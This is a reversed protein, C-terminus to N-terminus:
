YPFLSRLRRLRDSLWNSRTRRIQYGRTFRLLDQILQWATAYRDAPNKELCNLIITELGRPFDRCLDSPAIPPQKLIMQRLHDSQDHEFPTCQLCLEYLTAGLSYLDAAESQQGQLREPAMYKLTGGCSQSSADPIRAQAKRTMPGLISEAGPTQPVPLTQPNPIPQSLGFDTVWVHGSNELLLNGPKIDNHCIGASHAAHLAHATQLGIRAFEQWSAHTLRLSTQNSVTPHQSPATHTTATNASVPPIAIPLLDQLDIGTASAGLSRIVRDLSAGQILKMIFFCYGNEQGYRFVPVIGPHHLQQVTQAEREFRAVWEPVVSVRWPLVKMAVLHGSSLDRARFVVGMGGRGLEQLLECNGLRTFPISGPMNKRISRAEKDIRAHELMALVPFVDRVREAHPPFRRAYLEISPKAGKRLEDVFQTVLLEFPERSRVAHSDEAVPLGLLHFDFDDPHDSEPHPM